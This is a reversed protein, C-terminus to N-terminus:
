ARSREARHEERLEQLTPRRGCPAAFLELDLAACVALVKRIGVERVTGNEIGSITARSMRLSQALAAQSRGTMKRARAIEAGIRDFNSHNM